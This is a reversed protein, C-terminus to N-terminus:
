EYERGICDDVMDVFHRDEIELLTYYTHIEKLLKRVLYPDSMHINADVYKELLNLNDNIIDRINFTMKDLLTHLM